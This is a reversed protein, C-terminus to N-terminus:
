HNAGIKETTLEWATKAACSFYLRLHWYSTIALFYRVQEYVDM